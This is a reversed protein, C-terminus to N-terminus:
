KKVTIKNRNTLKAYKITVTYKGRKLNKIKITAIGKKNTKAKYTKGKIKFTIKKNKLVKGNKNLLKATYKINKGKKFSKNKTILTTKVTIKNSAKFGKYESTITYKGPKLSLKVSAYGLNDTKVNYVNKNITIKVELDKAFAGYDDCIRVRYVPNNGYYLSIDRNETIRKAININQSLVEGTDPNKIYINYNGNTLPIAFTVKGNEDTTVTFDKGNLTVTMQTNNLPNSNRDWLTAEYNSNLAYTRIEPLLISSKVTIISTNESQLYNDDGNFSILANYISDKLNLIMNAYGKEDTMNKYTSGNLNFIIERGIVAEGFEDTLKVRYILGSNYITVVDHAELQTKKVNIFFSTANSSDYVDKNVHATINYQGYELETLDIHCTGNVTRLVQTENNITVILEENIPKSFTFNITANNLDQNVTINMIVPIPKLEFTANASSPHYNPSNFVCSINNVGLILPLQLSAFGDFVTVNYDEGNVTFTVNGNRVTNNSEDIITATINFLDISDYTVNFSKITSTLTVLETFGKICAVQTLYSHGPYGYWRLDYLDNWSKGNDYSVFSVGPAYTYKTLSVAESIPFAVDGEVTIKFVIEFLDGKVLPIPYDLNITFYGPVASGNQILQLKSNVYVNVEWQTNKNFYTSVAKLFENDTAQYANEYWVSEVNNWFYDTVGSIDYQYNKDYHQTDNLIFTYSAYTGPRAFFSDYYSVYFYGDGNVSSPWNPGWSNKVIWAGPGPAKPISISDDWGVIAVAHNTSDTLNQNENYYHYVKKGDWVAVAMYMTTAVAGYNMIAQKIGDNDTFSNRKLFIINQVHMLSHLVPSLHNKDDYAEDDESVPGLWSVLYAIPMNNDGGDNPSRINRGYDSYWAMLNKMNAESLDVVEGSAKLICSELASMAAFAWCNGGKQQDKVPTVLGLTRLDYKEPLITNITQNIAYLTYNGDGITLDVNTATYTTNFQKATNNEFKNLTENIKGSFSYIAGAYNSAACKIFENFTINVINVDNIFLGAGNRATNRIFRSSNLNLSGYYGYLAGGDYRADNNKFISDNLNLTSRLSVIGAGFDAKSDTVTINNATLSSSVLYIAGGSGEDAKNLIFETNNIIIRVGSEGLIAGAFNYATNNHFRSNLVTLSGGRVYIAGGYPAANDIFSCNELYINKNYEAYIAGGYYNVNDKEPHSPLLGTFVTNQANLHGSNVIHFNTLTVNLFNVTGNITLTTGNGNLITRQPDQGNFSINNFTRSKEFVYEGNALHITSNDKVRDDTFNNYPTDKLGDGDSTANVDFYYDTANVYDCLTEQSDEACAVPVILLCLVLTFFAMLKIKKM